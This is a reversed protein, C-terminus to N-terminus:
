KIENIFDTSSNGDVKEIEILKAGVLNCQELRRSINKDGKTIAIYDPQIQVILKDYEENKTVGRLPILYDVTTLSSLVIGRKKQSNIPRGVGKLKRINEDSELLLFLKDSSKKADALFKIHGVHLVDFCGGVLVNKEGRKKLSKSIQAANQISIIKKV